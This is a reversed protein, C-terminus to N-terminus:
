TRKITQVSYAGDAGITVCIHGQTDTRYLPIEEEALLDLESKVRYKHGHCFYIKVCEIEIEGDEPLPLFFDCNGACAYVKEPYQSRIERMDNGGDGLHIVYDNEAIRPLLAQVGKLNGHSDSVVIVTKM